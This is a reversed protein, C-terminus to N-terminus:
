PTKASVTNTYSIKQGMKIDDPNSINNQKVLTEVSTNLRKAISTLNDGSQVTRSLKYQLTQFKLVKSDSGTGFNNILNLSEVAFGKVDLVQDIAGLVNLLKPSETFAGFASKLGIGDKMLAKIGGSTAFTSGLASFADIFPAAKSGTGYAILGPITSSNHLADTNKNKGTIADTMQAVGIGIEGLSLMLATAGGLASGVGGTAGIYEISGITAAVGFGTNVLGNTFKGGRSNNWKDSVVKATVAIAKMTMGGPTKPNMPFFELGDLDIGQILRNSAFQYPTLEPYKKTIPDESLFRVLRPNYIRMGYDQFNGDGYVENDYRKGNFGYRYLGGAAPYKRGPM